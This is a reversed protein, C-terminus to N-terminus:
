VQGVLIYRVATHGAIKLKGLVREQMSTRASVDTDLGNSLGENAAQEAEPPHNGPIDIVVSTPATDLTQQM